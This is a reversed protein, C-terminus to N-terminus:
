RTLTENKKNVYKRRLVIFNIIGELYGLGYSTHLIFFTKVMNIMEKFNKSLKNSFYTILIIYFILPLLVLYLYESFIFIGIFLFILYSVFFLPVLQRVTTITKHKRNVFVKWYGYQYYQKFLKSFSARVM